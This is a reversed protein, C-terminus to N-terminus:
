KATEAAVTKVPLNNTAVMLNPTRVPGAVLAIDRIFNYSLNKYLYANIVLEAGIHNGAGLKNEVVVPQGLTATLRQAMLRVLVDTTGGTPYPVIWRIAKTPYDSAWASQLGAALSLIAFTLLRLVYSM